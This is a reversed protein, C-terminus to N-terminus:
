LEKEDKVVGNYIYLTKLNLLHRFDYCIALRQDVSLTGISPPLVPMIRLSSSDRISLVKLHHLEEIDITQIPNHNAM